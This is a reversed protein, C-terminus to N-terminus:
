VVAAGRRPPAEAEAPVAVQGPQPQRKQVTGPAPRQVAGPAPGIQRRPGDPPGQENPGSGGGAPDRYNRPRRWVPEGTAVDKGDGCGANRRFLTAASTTTYRSPNHRHPFLLPREGARHRGAAGGAWGLRGGGESRRGRLWVTLGAGRGCTGAPVAYHLKMLDSSDSDGRRVTCRPWATRSTAVVSTMMEFGKVQHHANTPKPGHKM